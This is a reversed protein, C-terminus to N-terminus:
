AAPKAKAARNILARMASEFRDAPLESVSGIGYAACFKEATLGAEPIHELLQDRQEASVTTPKGPANADATAGDDDEDAQAIGCALMLSYRRGYSLASGLGQATRKEVPVVVLGTPLSAGHGHFVTEVGLGDPLQEVRQVYAIGHRTLPARVADVVSALTAYRMLSGDPRKFAPNTGDLSASTMEAQAKALAAILEHMRHEGENM